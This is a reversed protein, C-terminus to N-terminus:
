ICSIIIKTKLLKIYKIKFCSVYLSSIAIIQLDNWCVFKSTHPIIFVAIHYFIMSNQLFFFIHHLSFSLFSFHYFNINSSILHVCIRLSSIDNENSVFQKTLICLQIIYRASDFHVIHLLYPHSLPLHPLSSSTENTLSDYSLCMHVLVIFQGAILLCCCCLNYVLLSYVSRHKYM